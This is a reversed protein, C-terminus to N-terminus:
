VFELALVILLYFTDKALDPDELIYTCILLYREERLM